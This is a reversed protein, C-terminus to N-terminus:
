NTQKNTLLQVLRHKPETQRELFTTRHTDHNCIFQIQQINHEWQPSLSSHQIIQHPVKNYKSTRRRKPIVCQRRRWPRFTFWTVLL